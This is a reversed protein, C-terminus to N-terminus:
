GREYVSTKALDMEDKQPTYYGRGHEHASIEMLPIISVTLMAVGKSEKMHSQLLTITEAM